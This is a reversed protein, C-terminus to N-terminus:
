FAIISSSGKRWLSELDELHEKRGYFNSITTKIM